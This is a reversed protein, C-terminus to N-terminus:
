HANRYQTPTMGTKQKFIRSFYHENDYGIEKSIEAVQENTERLLEKAKNIKLATLYDKLTEGTEKKFLMSLYTNTVGFESSLDKLIIGETYHQKVYKKVKRVIYNDDQEDIVSALKEEFEELFVLFDEKRNINQMLDYQQEETEWLVSKSYGYKDIYFNAVYIMSSLLYRIQSLEIYKSQDIYTDIEIFVANLAEIEGSQFAKEFSQIYDEFSNYDRYNRSAMVGNYFVVAEESVFSKLSYCQCVQLYALPVDEIKRQEQGIYITIKQNFYQKMIYIIRSCLKNILVLLEKESKSEMNYIISLEDISTECVYAFDYDELVEEIIQRIGGEGLSNDINDVKFMLVNFRDYPLKIDLEELKRDMNQDFQYRGYLIQKLFERRASQITQKSVPSHNTASQGKNEIQETAAELVSVLHNKDLDLKLIYDLAGMKMAERVYSYDDYSSLVVFETDINADKANKILELGNMVPMMIDTIVLDITRSMLIDLAEEGNTVSEVVEYGHEEWDVLSVIGLRSIVEDDALLITKM